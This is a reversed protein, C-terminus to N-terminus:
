GSPLVMIAGKNFAVQLELGLDRITELVTNEHPQWTAVVVTGAMVPEVQRQRLTEIFRPPPPEALAIEERSAARLLTAGSEGVVRDFLELHPFVFALDEIRRGTVMVLRRGTARLRGMAEVTRDDVVGNHALTGDYDCALALYRM